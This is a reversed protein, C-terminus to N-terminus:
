GFALGLVVFSLKAKAADHDIHNHSLSSGNNAYHVKSKEGDEQIRRSV